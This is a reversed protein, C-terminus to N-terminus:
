EAVELSELEEAGSDPDLLVTAEIVRKDGQLTRGLRRILIPVKQGVDFDTFLQPANPGASMTIRYQPNAMTQASAIATLVSLNDTLVQGRSEEWLGYDTVSGADEASAVLNPSQGAVNVRNVMPLSERLFDDCNDLTGPGFEFKAEPMVPGVPYHTAFEAWVAPDDGVGDITFYFPNTALKTLYTIKEAVRDGPVFKRTVTSSADNTAQRLHTTEYGNQLAILNWAIQGKDVSTYAISDRVERWSLNYYPDKAVLEWANATERVETFEGNFRNNGNRWARLVGEHVAGELANLDNRNTIQLAIECYDSERRTYRVVDPHPTLFAWTDSLDRGTIAFQWSAVKRAAQVPGPM